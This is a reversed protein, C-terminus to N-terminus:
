PLCSRVLCSELGGAAYPCGHQLEPLSILAASHYHCYAQGWAFYGVWLVAHLHSYQKWHFLCSELFLMSCQLAGGQLTGLKSRVYSRLRWFCRQFTVISFVMFGISPVM